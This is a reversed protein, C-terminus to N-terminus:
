HITPSLCINPVFVCRSASDSASCFLDRHGAVLKTTTCKPFGCCLVTYLVTSFVPFLHRLACLFRCYQPIHQFTITFPRDSPLGFQNINYGINQTGPLEVLKKDEVLIFNSRCHLIPKTLRDQGAVCRVFWEDYSTDDEIGAHPVLM